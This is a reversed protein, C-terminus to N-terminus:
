LKLKGMTSKFKFIPEYSENFGPKDYEIKWGYKQFLPEFDLYKNKLIVKETVGEPALKLIEALIDKQSIKIEYEGRYNLQLLNNVAVIVYSPIITELEDYIDQPSMPKIQKPIPKMNNWIKPSLTHILNIIDEDTGDPLTNICNQVLDRSMGTKKRLRNLKDKNEEM